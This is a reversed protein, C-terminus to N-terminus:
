QSGIVSNIQQNVPYGSKEPPGLPLCNPLSRERLLPAQETPLGQALPRLGQVAPKQPRRAGGSSLGPIDGGTLREERFRGARKPGAGLRINLLGFTRGGQSLNRKEPDNEGERDAEAWIRTFKPKTTTFPSSIIAGATLTRTSITFTCCRPGCPWLSSPLRM